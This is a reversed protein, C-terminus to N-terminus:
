QSDGWWATNLRLTGHSVPTVPHTPVARKSTVSAMDETPSEVM